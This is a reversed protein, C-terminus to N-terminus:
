GGFICARDNDQCPGYHRQKVPRWKKAQQKKKVEKRVHKKHKKVKKPVGGGGLNVKVEESVTLGAVLAPLVRM